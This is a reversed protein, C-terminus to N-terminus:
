PKVKADVWKKAEAALNFDYPQDPVGADDAAKELADVYEQLDEDTISTRVVTVTSDVTSEVGTEPDTRTKKVTKTDMAYQSNIISITFKEISGDVLGRMARDFSEKAAAKDALGSSNVFSDRARRTEAATILSSNSLATATVMLQQSIPSNKGETYIRDIETMVINKDGDTMSSSRVSSKVIERAVTDGADAIGQAARNAMYYCGGCCSAIALVIVGLVALIVIVWNNSSQPQQSPSSM